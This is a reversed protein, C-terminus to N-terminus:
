CSISAYSIRGGTVGGNVRCGRVVSKIHQDLGSISSPRIQSDRLANEILASLGVIETANLAQGEFQATEAQRDQGSASTEEARTRAVSVVQLVVLAWVGIMLAVTLIRDIKKM